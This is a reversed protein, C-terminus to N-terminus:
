FFALHHKGINVAMGQGTGHSHGEKDRGCAIQLLLCNLFGNAADFDTKLM